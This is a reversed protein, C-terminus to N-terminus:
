RAVCNFSESRYNFQSEEAHMSYSECIEKANELLRTMRRQGRDYYRRYKRDGRETLQCQQQGQRSRNEIDIRVIFNCESGLTPCHCNTVTRIAVHRKNCIEWGFLRRTLSIDEAIMECNAFTTISTLILLATFLLKMM